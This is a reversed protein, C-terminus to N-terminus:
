STIQRRLTASWLDVLAVMAILLLLLTWVQDYLLEDLTLQIQFGLGAVGM